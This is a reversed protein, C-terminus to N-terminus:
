IMLIDTRPVVSLSASSIFYIRGAGRKAVM